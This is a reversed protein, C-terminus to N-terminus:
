KVEAKLIKVETAPPGDPSGTATGKKAIDRVVQLSKDDMAGFLTYNPPLPSDEYNLFFQSGNTNPGANAMAITGAKYLGMEGTGAPYEDAFSFGPGGSGKGSPDGCQLVFIGDTTLRHCVTNDYYGQKALSSIAGVTCPAQDANLQMTIDGASTSLKLDVTGAPPNADPKDVDKAATRGDKYECSGAAQSKTDDSGCGALALASLLLSSLLVKNKM